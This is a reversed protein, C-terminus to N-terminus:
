RASTSSSIEEEDTQMVEDAIGKDTREKLGKV